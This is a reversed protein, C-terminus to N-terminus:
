VCARGGTQVCVASPAACSGGLGRGDCTLGGHVICRPAAAPLCTWPRERQPPHRVKKGLTVLQDVAAPRYVDTAVLLPKKGMKTFYLALKGVATTKGVGQLGAMLIVTPGKEAFNIGKQEGGM